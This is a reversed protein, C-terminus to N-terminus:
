PTSPVLTWRDFVTLRPIDKGEPSPHPVHSVLCSGDSHTGHYKPRAFTGTCRADLPHATFFLSSLSSISVSPTVVWWGHPHCVYVGDHTGISSPLLFLSSFLYCCLIRLLKAFVTRALPLSWPSPEHLPRGGM